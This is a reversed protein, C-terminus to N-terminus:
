SLKAERPHFCRISVFGKKHCIVYSMINCYGIQPNRHYSPLEENGQLGCYDVLRRGTKLGPLPSVTERTESLINKPQRETKICVNSPRM